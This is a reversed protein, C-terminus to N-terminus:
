LHYASKLDEWEDDPEIVAEIVGIDKLVQSAAHFRNNDWGLQSCITKPDGTEDKAICFYLLVADGNKSGILRDATYPTLEIDKEKVIRLMYGAM